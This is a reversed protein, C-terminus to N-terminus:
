KGLEKRDWDWKETQNAWRNKFHEGSSLEEDAKTRRLVSQWALSAEAATVSGASIKSCLLFPVVSQQSGPSPSSQGLGFWGVSCDSSLVHVCLTCVHQSHVSCFLLSIRSRNWLLTFWSCQLQMLSIATVQHPPLQVGRCWSRTMLWPWLGWGLFPDSFDTVVKMHASIQMHPNQQLVLPLQLFSFEQQVPFGEQFNKYSWPLTLSLFTGYESLLALCPALLVPKVDLCCSSLIEAPYPYHM